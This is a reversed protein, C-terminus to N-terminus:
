KKPPVTTFSYAFGFSLIEKLMWKKWGKEKGPASTDYRGHLYIQTSLFRNIAFNFTHEWDGVFYKYDSFLYLRQKWVINPALKWTMTLEANSGIENSTKRGEKINFQTPDVKHDICTRLNYSVPAISAQFNIGKKKNEKSYTMGLGFNLEGPSLFSAKRDWSNASYNNLMQTKFLMSFSYYWRKFAKVGGTLNYQLLDESIAYKHMKDNPTSYLGLKYQLNSELLLNPHYVRNLQVNWALNALVTLSNDGGQYWNPSVYAQSFQLGLNTVHLWHRRIAPEEPTYTMSPLAAPITRSAPLVPAETIPSLQPPEPLKWAFYDIRHAPGTMLMQQLLESTHWRLSAEELWRPNVLSDARFTYITRPFRLQPVTDIHYQPLTDYVSTRYILLSMPIFPLSDRYIPQPMLAMLRALDTDITDANAKAHNRSMLERATARLTTPQKGSVAKQSFAPIAALLVIILSVIGTRM